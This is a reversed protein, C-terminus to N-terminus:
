ELRREHVVEDLLQPAEHEPAGGIRLRSPAELAALDRSRPEYALEDLAALELPDLEEVVPEGKCAELSCPAAARALQMSRRPAVLARDLDWPAEGPIGALM